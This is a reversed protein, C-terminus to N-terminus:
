AFRALSAVAEEQGRERSVEDDVQPEPMLGADEAPDFSPHSKRHSNVVFKALMADTVPDVVDQPCPNPGM